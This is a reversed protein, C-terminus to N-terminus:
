SAEGQTPPDASEAQIEIDSIRWAGDVFRLRFVGLVPRAEAPGASATLSCKVAATAPRFEVSRVTWKIDDKPAPDPLKKQLAADACSKMGAADGDRTAQLFRDVLQKVKAEEPDAGSRTAAQELLRRIEEGTALDLATCGRCNRLYVDAQALLLAEVLKVEGEMAALHLPRRGHKDGLNPNAGMRLLTQAAEFHPGLCALHIATAGDNDQKDLYQNFSALARPDADPAPKDQQASAFVLAPITAASGAFAAHHLATWGREDTVTSSAGAALLQGMRQADGLSAALRLAEDLEEQTPPAIEQVIGPPDEDPAPAVVKKQMGPTRSGFLYVRIVQEGHVGLALNAPLFLEITLSKSDRADVPEGLKLTEVAEARAFPQQVDLTVHSLAGDETFKARVMKLALQRCGDTGIWVCCREKASIPEGLVSRMSTETATDVVIGGYSSGSDASAAKL